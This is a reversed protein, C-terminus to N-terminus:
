DDELVDKETIGTEKAFKTGRAIVRDLEEKTPLDLKKMVITNKVGYVAFKAGNKLKLEKRISQPIVVQGKVSLSTTEVEAVSDGGYSHLVNRSLYNKNEM